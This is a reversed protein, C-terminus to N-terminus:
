YSLLQEYIKCLRAVMNELSYKEVVLRRGARGLKSRTEENELLYQIAEGLKSPKNLPVLLGNQYSKVIDLVGGVPTAIVPTECSLAELISVAFGETFSPLIFLSAKQYWEVIKTRELPGIYTIKHRARMNEKEILELVNQYYRLDYDRPGIIVLHVPKKVFKLSEILVHLGKGPAIRGVFLLLNSEKHGSPLFFNTDVGNPLHAIMRDPIGLTQLDKKMRDSIAIILDPIRKLFTKTIGYRKLFNTDIGHLHLIKKKRQLSSFLPFSFELEHFHIIDYDRLINTFRGPIVNIGLTIRNSHTIPLWNLAPIQYVSFGHERVIAGQWRPNWKRDMNFTMVDTQVNKDNLMTPLSHVIAESGGKAYYCPITMM